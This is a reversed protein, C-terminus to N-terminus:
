VGEVNRRVWRVLRDYEDDLVQCCGVSFAKVAPDNWAFVAWGEAITTRVHRQDDRGQILAAFLWDSSKQTLREMINGLMPEYGFRVMGSPTEYIVLDDVRYLIHPQRM